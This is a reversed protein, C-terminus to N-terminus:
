LKSWTARLPRRRESLLVIMRPSSLLVVVPGMGLVDSGSSYADFSNFSERLKALLEEIHLESTSNVPEVQSLDLVVLSDPVFRRRM